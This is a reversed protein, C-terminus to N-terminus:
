ITTIEWAPYFKSPNLTQQNNKSVYTAAYRKDACMVIIRGEIVGLIIDKANRKTLLIINRDEYVKKSVFEDNVEESIVLKPSMVDLYSYDDSIKRGHHPAILVDINKIDQKHKDLLYDMVKKEADGCFLIKRGEVTYLIVYSCDNWESAQKSKAGKIMQKTPSLIQLYDDNLKNGNGDYAFYKTANGELYHLAKPNSKSIRLAQYCKWDEEDFEGSNSDGSFDMEKNNDIDWFNTIGFTKNLVALGDLHDMDPHTLIFRFIQEKEKLITKLVNIPNSNEEKEEGPNCAKCCDIVTVKKDKHQIISCDGKGVNLIHITAM